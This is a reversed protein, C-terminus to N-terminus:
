KQYTLFVSFGITERVHIFAKSESGATSRDVNDLMNCFKLVHHKIMKKSRLCSKIQGILINDEDTVPIVSENLLKSKKKNSKKRQSPKLDRLDTSSCSRQIICM